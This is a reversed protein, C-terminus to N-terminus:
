RLRHISPQFAADSWRSRPGFPRTRPDSGRVADDTAPVRANSATAAACSWRNPHGTPVFPHFAPRNLAATPIM